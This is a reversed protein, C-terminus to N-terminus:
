YLGIRDLSTPIEGSKEMRRVEERKLPVRERAIFVLRQFEPEDEIDQFLPDREM